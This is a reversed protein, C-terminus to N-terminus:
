YRVSLLPWNKIETTPAMTSDIFKANRIEMEYLGTLTNHATQNDTLPICFEMALKTAVVSAFYSPYMEPTVRCLITASIKRADSSVRNGNAAWHVADCSIIRLTEAPLVFDGDTTKELNVRKIAFHWPHSAILNDTTIDFLTRSLQAGASNESFSQIPMEGIKLLAMSCLDIKTHM